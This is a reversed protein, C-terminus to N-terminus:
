RLKTFPFAGELLSRDMSLNCSLPLTVAVKRSPAFCNAALNELAQTIKTPNPEEPPDFGVHELTSISAILEYGERPKYDVV